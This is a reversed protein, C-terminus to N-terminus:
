QHVIELGLPTIVRVDSPIAEIYEVLEGGHAPDLIIIEDVDNYIVRDFTKTLESCYDSIFAFRDQDLRPNLPDRPCELIKCGHGMEHVYDQGPGHTIIHLNARNMHKAYYRVWIDLFIPDNYVMTVFVTSM